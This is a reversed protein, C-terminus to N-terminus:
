KMTYRKISIKASNSPIDPNASGPNVTNVYIYARYKGDQTEVWLGGENKVNIAYNPLGSFDLTTFDPDDVYIGYQMRALHRDRLGYVKRVPTSNNVGAPLTVGSLYEADAAPSVFAHAFTIGSINRYLYVLDIVGAKSAAEAANYTAMDAISIFCNDGDTTVIDLAMDM